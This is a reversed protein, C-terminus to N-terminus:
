LVKILKRVTNQQEPTLEQETLTDKVNGEEDVKALVVGRKEVMIDESM